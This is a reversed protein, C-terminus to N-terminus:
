AASHDNGVIAIIAKLDQAKVTRVEAENARCGSAEVPRGAHGAVTVVTDNHGVRAITLDLHQIEIAIEKASVVGRVIPM